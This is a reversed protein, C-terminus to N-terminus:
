PSTCYSWVTIITTGTEMSHELVKLKLDVWTKTLMDARLINGRGGKWWKLVAQDSLCKISLPLTVSNLFYHTVDVKRCVQNENYKSFTLSM